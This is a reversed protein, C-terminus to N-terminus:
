CKALHTTEPKICTRVFIHLKCSIPVKRDGTYQMQMGYILSFHTQHLLSLNFECWIAFHNM